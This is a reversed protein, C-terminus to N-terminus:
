GSYVMVVMVEREGVWVWVGEGSVLVGSISVESWGVELVRM